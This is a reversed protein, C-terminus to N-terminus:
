LVLRWKGATYVGEFSKMWQFGDWVYQVGTRSNTIYTLDKSTESNFIVIWETGNWQIISNAKCRFNTGDQNKWGDPGDYDIDNYQPVHNIDELILFRTNTVAWDLAGNPLYLRPNYTQPDIIADVRLGTSNGPTTDFGDRGELINNNDILTDAYLTDSDWNIYMVTDNDTEDERPRLSIKGVIETGDPKQLRLESLDATFKGPYLDLITHWNVDPGFKVPVTINDPNNDPNQLFISAGEAIDSSLPNDLELTLNVLEGTYNVVTYYEGGLRIKSGAPPTEELGSLSISTQGQRNTTAVGNVVIQKALGKAGPQQTDNRSYSEGEKLLKATNDLVLIGLNGITRRGISISVRGSFHDVDQSDEYTGSAITGPPDAFMNTIIQTIIGLKKVKAPTTLWIPSKFSLTAVDVDQELGQPVSRSTFIMNTLEVTSLSTWDIYNNSTQIEMSPNFLVLLQELIQFKQDTNTTWIDTAFEINFPTPMLREVTYNSGQVNLYEQGHEDYARERINMKSVFTPDQLRDRAFEMNKIYCAIFPASQVINESNKNIIQAVQRNMDGYRVPIQVIKGKADKYAFNSMLRMFQTLYRKIQADYFHEM